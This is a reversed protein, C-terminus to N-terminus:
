RPQGGMEQLLRERWEVLAQYQDHEPGIRELAAQVDQLAEGRVGMNQLVAARSWYHTPEGPELDQAFSFDGYADIWETLKLLLGGSAAFPKASELQVLMARRYAERAADNEDRGQHLLGQNYPALWFDPALEAVREMEAILEDDSPPTELGALFMARQFRAVHNRPDLELARNSDALAVEDGELRSRLLSRVHWADGDHPWLEIAREVSKLGEENRELEWLATARHTYVTALDSEDLGSRDAALARDFAEVAGAHDELEFRAAGVRFWVWADDPEKAVVADFDELAGEHAGRGVRTTGRDYLVALDDPLRDELRLGLGLTTGAGVVVGLLAAAAIWPTRRPVRRRVRGGELYSRLALALEGATRYRAGPDKALCRSCIRVLDPGARKRIHPPFAPADNLVAKLMSVKDAADHFPSHGTLMEYLVGGLGYVDTAPGVKDHQGRWQEPASYAPTGIVDGTETLRTAGPDLLKSLGFDALYSSGDADILVNHPKIDRHLVGKSHAYHLAEALELSISAAQRPELPGREAVVDKLASGEILDMAMWVYQEERGAAHLGVVHPHRLRAAAKAERRVQTVDLASVVQVVKVALPRDLLPDHAEYVVGMAGRGLERGLTYPGVQM